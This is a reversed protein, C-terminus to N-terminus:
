PLIPIHGLNPINLQTETQTAQDMRETYNELTTLNNLYNQLDPSNLMRLLFCDRIVEFLISEKTKSFSFETPLENVPKLIVKLFSVVEEKKFKGLIITENDIITKSFFQKMIESEDLDLDTNLVFDKDAIKYIKESM